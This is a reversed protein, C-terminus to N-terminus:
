SFPYRGNRRKKEAIHQSTKYAVNQPQIWFINASLPKGFQEYPEGTLVRWLMDYASQPMFYVDNDHLIVNLIDQIEAHPNLSEAHNYFYPLLRNKWVRDKKVVIDFCHASLGGPKLVRNIDSLINEFTEDEDGVHELVSISIVADFYKDPLLTSHEGVYARVLRVGEHEKIELPGGGMGEFKDLNWFEYDHKLAEIIRSNGGGIELM